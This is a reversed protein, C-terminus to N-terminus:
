ALRKQNRQIVDICEGLLSGGLKEFEILSQSFQRCSIDALGPDYLQSDEAAQLIRLDRGQKFNRHSGRFQVTSKGYRVKVAGHAGLMSSVSSCFLRTSDTKWSAKFM